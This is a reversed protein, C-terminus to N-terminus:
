SRPYSIDKVSLYFNSWNFKRKRITDTFRDTHKHFYLQTNLTKAQVFQNKNLLKNEELFNMLQHHLNRVFQCCRLQDTTILTMKRVVPTVKGIKWDTPVLGSKLTLNIVRCLPKQLSSPLM